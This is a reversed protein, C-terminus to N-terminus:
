SLPLLTFNVEGEHSAPWPAEVRYPICHRVQEAYFILKGQEIRPPAIENLDFPGFDAPTTDDLAPQLFLADGAESLASDASTSDDDTVLQPLPAKGDTEFLAPDLPPPADPTAAQDETPPPIREVNMLPSGAPMTLQQMDHYRARFENADEILVCGPGLHFHLLLGCYYSLRDTRGFDPHAAILEALTYHMQGAVSVCPQDNDANFHLAPLIAMEANENQEDKNM